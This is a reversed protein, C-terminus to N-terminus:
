RFLTYGASDAVIAKVAVITGVITCVVGFCTLSVLVAKSWKSLEKWFFIVFLLYPLRVVNPTPLAARPM